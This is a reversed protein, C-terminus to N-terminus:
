YIDYENVVKNQLAITLTGTLAEAETKVGDFPALNSHLIDLAKIGIINGTQNYEFDNSEDLIWNIDNFCYTELKLPSNFLTGRVIKYTDVNPIGKLSINALNSYNNVYKNHDYDFYGITFKDDTLMPHSDIVFTTLSDPIRLEEIVGGVPLTVSRPNSGNLLIKKIQPCDRFDIGGSFTACNELNFEELFRFGTL